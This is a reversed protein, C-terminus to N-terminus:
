KKYYWGRLRQPSVGAAFLTLMLWNGLSNKLIGKAKWRRASTKARSNLLIFRGQGRLRKVCYVDEMLPLKGFGGAKLFAKKRAFIIQDGYILKFLTSRVTVLAEIIRFGAGACDISLRFAGGAVREDKLAGTVAELWGEPLRTDAHLFVLIGGTAMLAAEDMQAGRGPMAKIVTAGLRMAIRRTEDSSQGDAVIIEAGKGASAIAGSINEAENLTPIIM